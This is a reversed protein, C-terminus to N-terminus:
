KGFLNGISKAAGSTLDEAGKPIETASKSVAKITASFISDMLRRSLDTATLGADNKGLDTLHIDPLDLTMERGGAGTMSVHVKAGTVLFDDVQIKKSPKVAAPQNTSASQQIQEKYSSNINDLIKSLNNGGFGGEFTVEPSELHFSRVHIKDSFVSFPDVGVDVTGVSIAESTRYGEPNGVTLGKITASGTLLSLNVANAKVSVKAIQPGVTEIGKKVIDGLFFGIVVIAIIILVVLGVIVSWFPKKM